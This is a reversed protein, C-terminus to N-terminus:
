ERKPSMQVKKPEPESTNQQSQRLFKKLFPSQQEKDYSRSTKRAFCHTVDGGFLMITPKQDRFPINLVNCCAKCKKCDYFSTTKNTLVYVCKDNRCTPCYVDGITERAKNDACLEKKRYKTSQFTVNFLLQKNPVLNVKKWRFCRTKDTKTKKVHEQLLFPVKHVFLSAGCKGCAYISRPTKVYGRVSECKESNSCYRGPRFIDGIVDQVSKPSEESINIEQGPM